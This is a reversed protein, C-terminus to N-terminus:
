LRASCGALAGPQSREVRPLPRRSGSRRRLSAVGRLASRRVGARLASHAGDRLRAAPLPPGSSEERRGRRVRRHQADIRSQGGGLLAARRKEEIRQPVSGGSAARRGWPAARCLAARLVCLAAMDRPPPPWHAQARRGPVPAARRTCVPAAAAAPPEPTCVPSHACRLQQGGSLGGDPPPLRSSFRHADRETDHQAFLALHARGQPRWM